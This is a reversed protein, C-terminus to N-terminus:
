LLPIVQSGALQYIRFVSEPTMVLKPGESSKLQTGGGLKRLLNHLWDEKKWQLRIDSFDDPIEAIAKLQRGREMPIAMDKPSQANLFLNLFKFRSEPWQTLLRDYLKQAGYIHLYRELRDLDAKTPKEKGPYTQNILFELHRVHLELAIPDHGRRVLFSVEDTKLLELLSDVNRPDDRTDAERVLNKM